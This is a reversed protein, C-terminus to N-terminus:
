LRDSYDDIGPLIPRFPAMLRVTGLQASTLADDLGDIAWTKGDWADADSFALVLWRRDLECQSVPIAIRPANPPLQLPRFWLSMSRPEGHLPALLQELATVFASEDANEDRDILLALASRYPYELALEAPIPEHNSFHGRVYDYFGTSISRTPPGMRGQRALRRVQEVSWSLAAERRGKLIWYLNLFSGGSIEPGDAVGSGTRQQKLDRPAVFRRGSFFDAGAMCGAYFHDREYWRSFDREHGAHPEVLSFLVTGLEVPPALALDEVTPGRRAPLNGEIKESM